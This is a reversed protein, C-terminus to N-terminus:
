DPEKEIKEGIEVMGGDMVCVDLEKDMKESPNIVRGNKILITM